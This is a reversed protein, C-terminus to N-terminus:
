RWIIVEVSCKRFCLRHLLRVATIRTMAQRFTGNENILWNTTKPSFHVGTRRKPLRKLVSLIRRDYADFVSGFNPKAADQKKGTDALRKRCAEYFAERDGPQFRLWVGLVIMRSNKFVSTRYGFQCDEWSLEIIEGESLVKVKEVFNSISDTGNGRGANMVLIGGILAPLSYLYEAGGYGADNVSRILKQIRVSAGAYFRGDGLNEIRNDFANLLIVNEFVKKDNILLNSGGSICYKPEQIECLLKMLEETNEPTYLNTCMGGMRFTTYRSLSVHHQVIM